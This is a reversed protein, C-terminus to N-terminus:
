NFNMIKIIDQGKAMRNAINILPETVIKMHYANAHICNEEDIMIGVHGEWFVVCGRHLDGIKKLETKKIKVQESTNRPITQGYTQYSLQLLASCDIGITDRGGWRYPIGELQEASLVWDLITDEIKIIHNKPVYGIQMKDGIFFCTKAWSSNTEEIRLRSGMPLYLLFISKESPEKYVFTRVNIVRHTITNIQGLNERKIWGCYKDTSLKCYVWDLYVDLIEVTEGFLCETELLSEFTPKSKMYASSTIINM